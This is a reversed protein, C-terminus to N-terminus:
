FTHPPLYIWRYRSKHLSQENTLPHGRMDWVWSRVSPPLTALDSESGEEVLWLLCHRQHPTLRYAAHSHVWSRAEPPTTCVTM